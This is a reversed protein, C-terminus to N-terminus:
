KEEARAKGADLDNFNMISNFVFMYNGHNTDRWFPNFTFMMIHGKGLPMDIIAAKGQLDKENQVMGSLCIKGESAYKVVVFDELEESLSILPGSHRRYLSPEKGYGYVAPHQSNAVEGKLISGPNAFGPSQGAIRLGRVLGFDIFIRVPNQLTIMLGGNKVFDRLNVVGEIGMGGTIDESAAPTGLHKFEESKVFALPGRHAPDIGNVIDSGSRGRCNSFVIVDYKNKLHGTKVDDKDIYDYPIDLQDFAYRVWGDDQTSQWTHLIAIRPIDLDHTEVDPMTSTSVVELGIEGAMSEVAKFLGEPNGSVPIIMSGADFSREKIKFPAEAALVHFDKLRFRATILGNITGNNIVFAKSAKKGTIKGIPKVPSTVPDLPIEFVAKDMVKVTKVGMNLGLTWGADDYVRTTGPDTPYKQIGLLNKVLNGYPQDMRIVFSGKPFQGEELEFDKKSRHVEIRQKLLVNVLFSMDLPDKQNAPIIYAYPPENKGKNYSHLGRKWFNKLFSDRNSAVTYWALLDGTIQYNLNNRMSWLFKDPPPLPRYWQPKNQNPSIEREMTNAISNGETEYFHFVANHNSAISAMFNPSWMTNGFAHTYVGPMGYGTMQAVEFWAIMTAESGLSPPFNSPGNASSVYFLNGTEHNDQLVVPYWEFFTNTINQMEPQSMTIMDRNNDHLDYKGWYPVRSIKNRTTIDKNYKYFWDTHKDHGDPEVSPTILVILNDRIKKVFPNNDVALRYAVEMSAEASGTESSHLNQTLWYVPKIQSIIADAEAETKVLRPDALRAMLTQNKELNQLTQSDSIVVIVMERGEGSKGIPIVRVNESSDALARMYKLIDEYYTLKGPAGAIYGLVDKPTPVGDAKPLYNVLPSLFEPLTTAELILKTYEEDHSLSSSDQVALTPSFFLIGAAGVAMVLFVNRRLRKLPGM